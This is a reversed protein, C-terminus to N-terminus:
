FNKLFAYHRKIIFGLKLATKLSAINEANCNWVPQLGLEHCKQLLAVTPFLIYGKGRHEPNTVIGVECLGNGVFVGYAQAVSIGQDNVLAYGFSIDLFRQAGGHMCVLFDIWASEQLLQMDLPQVSFGAPLDKVVFEFDPRYALEIRSQVAFGHQLFYGQLSEECILNLNKYDSLVALIKTLQEAHPMGVLYIYNAMSKILVYPSQSHQDCLVMQYPHQGSILGQLLTQFPLREFFLPGFQKVLDLNGVLQHRQVEDCDIDNQGQYCTQISLSFFIISFVAVKQIYQLMM